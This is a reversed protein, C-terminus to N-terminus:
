RGPRARALPIIAAASRIPHRDGPPLDEPSHELLFAVEEHVAQSSIFQYDDLVLVMERQCFGPRQDPQDPRSRAASATVGGALQAAGSGIKVDAAQLAAILYSLFRGPQNDNKDLSLWAAPMGCEAVCAAILTTKGYGAPASVLTLKGKFGEKLLKLLHPRSVLEPRVLPRYLKTKVLPLKDM